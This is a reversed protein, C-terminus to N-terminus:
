RVKDLADQLAALMLTVAVIQALWDAGALNDDEEEHDDWL